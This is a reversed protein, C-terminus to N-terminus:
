ETVTRQRSLSTTDAMTSMAPATLRLHPPHSLASPKRAVHPFHPVPGLLPRGWAVSARNVDVIYTFEGELEKM